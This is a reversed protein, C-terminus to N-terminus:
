NESGYGETRQMAFYKVATTWGAVRDEHEVRPRMAEPAKVTRGLSTGRNGCRRAGGGLDKFIQAENAVGHLAGGGEGGDRAPSLNKEAGGGQSGRPERSLLQRWKAPQADPEGFSEERGSDSEQSAGPFCVAAAQGQKGAGGTLGRESESRWKEGSGQQCKEQKAGAELRGQGCGPEEQIAGADHGSACEGNGDHGDHAETEHEEATERDEARDRPSTPEQGRAEATEVNDESKEDGPPM